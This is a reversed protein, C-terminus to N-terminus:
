HTNLLARVARTHTHYCAMLDAVGTNRGRGFGLRQAVLPQLGHLLRDQARGALLHLHCRVQWLFRRAEVLVPPVPTAPGALESRGTRTSVDALKALWLQRQIDRLAGPGRKVDPEAEDAATPGRSASLRPALAAALAKAGIDKATQRIDGDLIAHLTFAGALFRTDLLSALSRHDVRAVKM